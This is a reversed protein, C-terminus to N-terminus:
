NHQLNIPTFKRANHLRVGGSGAAVHGHGCRKEVKCRAIGLVRNVAGKFSLLSKNVEAPKETDISITKSDAPCSRESESGSLEVQVHRLMDAATEPTIERSPEAFLEYGGFFKRISSRLLPPCFHM